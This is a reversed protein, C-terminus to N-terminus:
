HLWKHSKSATELWDDLAKKSFVITSKINVYPIEDLKGSYLMSIFDEQKVGLYDAAEQVTLADKTPKLINELRSLDMNIYPIDPSPYGKNLYADKLILACIIIAGAIIFAILINGRNENM